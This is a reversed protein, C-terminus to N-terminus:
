YSLGSDEISRRFMELFGELDQANERMEDQLENSKALFLDFDFNTALGSEVRTSWEEVLDKLERHAALMDEGCVFLEHVHGINIAEHKM